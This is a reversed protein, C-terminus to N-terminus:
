LSNSGQQQRCLPPLCCNSQAWRDRWTDSHSPCADDGYLIQKRVEWVDVIYEKVLFLLSKFNKEWHESGLVYSTKEVNSLLDFDAYSDGLMEQLKETFSARSSSYATCEWLVHVVSECEAGCLTCELKGERGRHRGLEENLGHTGSRFEFLLRTGADSVGHLYKKFEVRKGFKKYMALKVKNDLGEEFKRCERESICEDICALYSALSSEGREIDELWEAKDLGLSVFLDDIVRGWTKKQRGRRPKQDWEQSFLQKPFRDEPMTALKYWWKLKARDRRSKLTEIGMDGRVAENCTKSSCGLIRKAGGLIISELADVQSKNGEWVGGGYEISPRIVSLLLLRRASLNIDRNSIVSHLQNVKKRGNDLVKKLHVDWAGNSAFDIGLYSYNSVKPLKHEGWKWGGEVSNKSFVMVASKSVNAKLRWKNCYGHVVDILKQLSERSDSVGVFDDAFLMGGVRKGSSLQIGLEAQEVDKLLDNIFVSFLIPSLSCGQAVGQEVSFMVSKEGELLVTSRSAEYMKKIVRWMRGKVGMDWLKLWLGDRWVTDYAKQVDLFFAYTEKDERFRGQVIENLTYVNDMCSRNVRFGAQGEHLAGGKDLCQVLRNNLIKCFVKGVVSLLTIGRYNGPDERDGKKFLNVILGERWQKPVTEERWIVSFLQELLYVM